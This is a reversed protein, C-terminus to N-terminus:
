GPKAIVCIAPEGRFPTTSLSGVEPASNTYRTIASLRLKHFPNPFLKPFVKHFVKHFLKPFLKPFVKHVLKHVM